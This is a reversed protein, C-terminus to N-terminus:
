FNRAAECLLTIREQLAASVSAPSEGRTRIMYRGRDIAARAANYVLDGDLLSPEIQSGDLWGNWSEIFLVRERPPFHSQAYLMANELFLGFLHGDFPMNGVRLHTAGGEPHRLWDHFAPFVRPMVKGRRERGLMRSVAFSVYPFFRDLYDASDKLGALVELYDLGTRHNSAPCSHWQNPAPDVLADFGASLYRGRDEASNAILYLGPLGAKESARRLAAVVAAPAALDEPRDIILGARGDIEALPAGKLTAVLELARDAQELGASADSWLPEEGNRWRFSLGFERACYPAIAAGDHRYGGQLYRLDIVFGDIGAQRAMAIVPGAQEPKALDYQGLTSPLNLPFHLRSAPRSERLRRWRADSGLFGTDFFALVLM